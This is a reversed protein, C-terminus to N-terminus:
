GGCGCAPPTRGQRRYLAQRQRPRRRHPHGEHTQHRRLLHHLRHERHPRLPQRPHLLHPTDAPGVERRRHAPLPPQPERRQHRVPLGGPHDHVRPYDARKRLIRQTGVPRPSARRPHHVLHRRGHSLSLDGDYQRRLRLQRLGDGQLRPHPQVQPPVVRLIGRPQPARAPLRQPHGHHRLHLAHHLPLRARPKRRSRRFSCAPEHHRQHLAGRRSIPRRHPAARRRRHPAQRRRRADHLQPARRSLHPRPASLRLRSEGRGPLRHADM